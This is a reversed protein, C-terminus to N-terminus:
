GSMLAPQAIEFALVRASVVTGEPLRRRGHAEKFAASHTWATHAEASAWRSFVVYTGTPRDDNPAHWNGSLPRLVELSLFGEQDEVNRQRTSFTHEFGHEFGHAVDIVNMFAVAGADPAARYVSEFAQHTTLWTDVSQISPTAADLQVRTDHRRVLLAHDSPQTAHGAGVTPRLLEDAEAAPTVSGRPEHVIALYM